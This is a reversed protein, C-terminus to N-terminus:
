LFSSTEKRRSFHRLSISLVLSHFTFVLGDRIRALQSHVAANYSGLPNLPKLSLCKQTDCPRPSSGPWYHFISIRRLYHLPPGPHIPHIKALPPPSVIFSWTWGVGVIDPKHFPHPSTVVSGKWRNRRMGEGRARVLVREGLM